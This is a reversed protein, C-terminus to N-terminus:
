AHVSTSDCGAGGNSVASSLRGSVTTSVTTSLTNAVGLVVGDVINVTSTLMSIAQKHLRARFAKASRSQTRKFHYSQCIWLSVMALVVLPGILLISSNTHPGLGVHMPPEIEPGVATPNAAGYNDELQLSSVWCMAVAYSGCVWVRSIRDVQKAARRWYIINADLKTTAMELYNDSAWALQQLPVNWLLLSCAVVFEDKQIYYDDEDDLVDLILSCEEPSPLSSLYGLLAEMSELKIYGNSDSDIKFFLTEFFVLRLEDESTLPRTCRLM